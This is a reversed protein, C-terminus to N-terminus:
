QIYVKFGYGCTDTTCHRMTITIRFQGPSFASYTAIPLAPNLEEPAQQTRLMDGVHMDVDQCQEDCVAALMYNGPQLFVQTTQSQGAALRGFQGDTYPRFGQMAAITSDVMALANPSTDPAQASPSASSAAPNKVDEGGPIAKALADLKPDLEAAQDITPTVPNDTIGTDADDIESVVQWLGLVVLLAVVAMGLVAVVAIWRWPRRRPAAPPQQLTPPPAHRPVDATRAQQRELAALRQEVDRYAPVVARIRAFAMQADRHRGGEQDRVAAAYLSALQQQQTVYALRMRSESLAPDLALVSGLKAAALDWSERTIADEAEAALQAIRPDPRPPGAPKAAAQQQEKDQRVFLRSESTRMYLVPTGWEPDTSDMFYMALRANALAADVPEGEALSTYFARTFTIAAEDTIEFQMAIVAPIKKQVLTQATGSFVDGSTIRGGECANIVALRLTKEEHLLTGLQDAPTERAKGQADELVLMGGGQDDIGGHGIFHFVHVETHRLREHLASLTAHELRDLVIEGKAELQSVAAKLRKWEAEVDLRDWEEDNPSSIMVLVRLPPSVHLPRAPVPMDLYRVVPTDASLSLFENVDSRYLYEWPLAVLEPVGGMRLLVRLGAQSRRAVALSAEFRSGVRGSFVADYLRAGYRTVPVAKAPSIGVQSIGGARARRARRASRTLESLEVLEEPAFPVEFEASAEGEPSRIVLARYRSGVKDILLEFDLYEQAAM